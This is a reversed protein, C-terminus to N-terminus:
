KEFAIKAFNYIGVYWINWNHKGPQEQWTFNENPVLEDCMEPLNKAAESASIYSSDDETGCINYFYDIKYGSSSITEANTAAPNTTPAASFAGFRSFLDLCEGIGINITQMGGMSYGALARHERSASLDYGDESYDAYTAYHGDIYPILDNRLEYGFNYFLDPESDHKCGLARSNPTVVILPEIEGNGILNDLICRLESDERSLVWTKEDGGSGHLLYLVNYQGEPDYGSPLYVFANKECGEGDGIYDKALYTIEEVTGSEGDFPKKYDEPIETEFEYVIESSATKVTGSCGGILAACLTLSIFSIMIKKMNDDGNM